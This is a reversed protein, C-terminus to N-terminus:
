RPYFYREKERRTLQRHMRNGRWVGYYQCFRYSFIDPLARAFCRKRLSEGADVVLAAVFYRLADHWHVHIEPRITQLAIAEREFRRKIQRWTEHHYHHVAADPVYIIKRGAYHLRKAFALDELGTLSEDFRMSRWDQIRIGANANNCFYAVQNNCSHAPFYKEFLARECFSTEPGGVQRGYTIGVNEDSLPATLNRLWNSGIPVCHGSILVGLRGKAIDLGVNLARGFTFERRPVQVIRCAYEEAIALTRDTSGSDVLITEVEREGIEQKGIAALLSGLYREENFTRIIVSISLPVLM